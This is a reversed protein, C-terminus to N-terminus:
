PMEEGSTKVVKVNNAGIKEWRSSGRVQLFPSVFINENVVKKRNMEPILRCLMDYIDGGSANKKHLCFYKRGCDGNGSKKEEDSQSKQASRRAEVPLSTEVDPNVKERMRHSSQAELYPRASSM